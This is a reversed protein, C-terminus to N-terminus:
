SRQAAVTAATRLLDIKRRMTRALYNNLYTNRPDAELARRADAIASDIVALNRELTAVTKPDLQDRNVELVDELDEAAIRYGPDRRPARGRNMGGFDGLRGPQEEAAAVQFRPTPARGGAAPARQPTRGSAEPVGPAAVATSEAPRQGVDALQQPASDGVPAAVPGSDGTAGPVVPQVAIGAPADGQSRLLLTAGGASAVALAIGAAALQPLSFVFQRRRRSAIPVVAPEAAAPGTAVGAAPAAGIRAAIGAWLDATPPRDALASARERVRRLDAVAARCEGCGALHAECAAREAPALEDDLYESLRATWRDSM